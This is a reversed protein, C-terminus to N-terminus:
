RSFSRNVYRIPSWDFEAFKGNVRGAMAELQRRLNRYQAVEARSHPIIQLYTFSGRHEPHSTLLSDVAELRQPIGKSYDLRDVGIILRRGALSDNLRGAEASTAADAADAAFADADIGVPFAAARSWMGFAAFSGDAAPRGGALTRICGRFADM